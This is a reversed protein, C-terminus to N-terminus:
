SKAKLAAELATRTKPGFLGDVDHGTFVTAQFARLTPFGLKIIAHQAWAADHPEDNLHPTGKIGQEFLAAEADRRDLLGRVGPWLRKMERFDNPVASLNGSTIHAKISRMERYRDGANDFSAGRNYALSVIAGLCDPPLNAAEPISRIVKATWQPVDREMFVSMAADWPVDIQSRVLLLLDHAAQGSIGLCREMVAIMTDPLKGDWDAHLKAHDAYGLDYGIAITVGSAGGPWEPHRYKSEYTAQSSVESAVILDIARQSIM